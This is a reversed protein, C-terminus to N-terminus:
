WGKKGHGGMGGGMGNGGFGGMGGGMMQNTISNTETGNVIITGGNYQATGDYDFASQGSIDITGGSVVINGNSDIADTDGQGMSVTLTGDNMEFLPTCITSKRAANVGDDSASISIAGGNIQIWTAELGEGAAISVTGGDIQLITTAHIGDDGATISLTGGCIYVYGTTNDDENEVHLGDKQTSVSVTGAAIRISDNAELADSACSISITGGTIKLDDKGTIGNDSSVITLTGTGNLVLDDKSFIAADTNTEGDATFTGTVSLSNESDTTTVFVKDANKVYICPFDDNEITVGDLVLQVKDDDLADVIITANKASGTIVYVGAATITIDTEDALTYSVAGSLDATQELDRDTFLDAADIAGGSTVAATVTQSQSNGASDASQAAADEATQAAATEQTGTQSEAVTVTTNQVGSFLGTSGSSCATLSLALAAATIISFSKKFM